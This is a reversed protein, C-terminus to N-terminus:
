SENKTLKLYRQISICSINLAKAITQMSVSNHNEKCYKYIATALVTNPNHGTNLVKLRGKIVSISKNPLGLLTCYKELLISPDLIVSENSTQFNYIQSDTFGTVASVDKISIGCNLDTLTKYIVYAMANEKKRHRSEIKELNLRIDHAFFDSMELRSLIELIYDDNSKNVEKYNSTYNVLLNSVVLGCDTCVISGGQEDIIENLHKCYHEEFYIRHTPNKQM